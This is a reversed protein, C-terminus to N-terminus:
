SAATRQYFGTTQGFSFDELDTPYPTIGKRKERKM